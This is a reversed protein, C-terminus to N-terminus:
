PMSGSTGVFVTNVSGLLECTTYTPFSRPANEEVSPPLVHCANMVPIGVAITILKVYEFAFLVIRAAVCPRPTYSRGASVGGVLTTSRGTVSGAEKETKGVTNDEELLSNVIEKGCPLVPSHADRMRHSTVPFIM